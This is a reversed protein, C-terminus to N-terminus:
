GLRGGQGGGGIRGFTNRAQLTVGAGPPSLLSPWKPLADIPRPLKKSRIKLQRTEPGTTFTIVHPKCRAKADAALRFGRHRQSNIGISYKTRAQLAVPLRVVRPSVFMPQGIVDPTRGPRTRVFSYSNQKVPANFTVEINGLTVPVNKAGDLPSTKVVFCRRASAASVGLLVILVAALMKKM